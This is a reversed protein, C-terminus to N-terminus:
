ELLEKFKNCYKGARPNNLVSTYENVFEELARELEVIRKLAKKLDRKLYKCDQCDNGDMFTSFEAM